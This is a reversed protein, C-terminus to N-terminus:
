YKLFTIKKLIVKKSNFLQGLKNQKKMITSWKEERVLVLPEWVNNGSCGLYEINGVAYSHIRLNISKRPPLPIITM